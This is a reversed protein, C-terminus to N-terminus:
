VDPPEDPDADPLEPEGAIRFNGDAWRGLDLLRCRQSCFPRWAPDVPRKRCNVCLAGAEPPM